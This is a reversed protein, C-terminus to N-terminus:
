EWDKLVLFRKFWDDFGQGSSQEGQTPVIGIKPREELAALLERGSWAQSPFWFVSITLAVDPRTVVFRGLVEQYRNEVAKARGVDQDPFLIVLNAGVQALIDSPRKARDLVTQLLDRHGPDVRVELLVFPRPPHRTIMEEMLTM